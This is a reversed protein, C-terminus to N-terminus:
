AAAHYIFDIKHNNIVNTLRKTDKVDGLLGIIESDIGTANKISM